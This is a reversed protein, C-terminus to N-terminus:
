GPPFVGTGCAPCRAYSRRLVVERDHTTRLRRTREGEVVLGTGCIPCVPPEAALAPDGVPGGGAAAELLTARATAPRADVEREIEALTARPHAARWEGLDALVRATLRTWEGEIEPTWM